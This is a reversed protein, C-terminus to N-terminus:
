DFVARHMDKVFDVLPGIYIIMVVGAAIVAALGGLAGVLVFAPAAHTFAAEWWPIPAVLAIERVADGAKLPDTNTSIGWWTVQVALVLSQIIIGWFTALFPIAFIRRRDEAFWRPVGLVGNWLKNLIM